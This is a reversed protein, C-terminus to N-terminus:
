HTKNIAQELAQEINKVVVDFSNFHQFTQNINNDQWNVKINELELTAKNLLDFIRSYDEQNFQKAQNTLTALKEEAKKIQDEFEAPQSKELIRQANRLLVDASNILGCFTGIQADDGLIEKARKLHGESQELLSKINEHIETLDIRSKFLLLESELVSVEEKCKNSDSAPVPLQKLKNEIGQFFETQGSREELERIIKGQILKNGPLFVLIDAIKSKDLQNFNELENQAQLYLNEKLNATGTASLDTLINEVALVTELSRFYSLLGGYNKQIKDSFNNFVTEKAALKEGAMTLLAAGQGILGNVQGRLAESINQSAVDSFIEEYELSAAILKDLLAGTDLSQNTVSLNSFHTKLRNIAAEYNALAKNLSNTKNPQEVALKQLELLKESVARLDWTLQKVPDSIFQYRLGWIFNKIFYFISGPLIRPENMGLVQNYIIGEKILKAVAEDPTPNPSVTQGMTLSPITWILLCVIFVFIMIITIIKKTKM